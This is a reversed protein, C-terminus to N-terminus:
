PATYELWHDALRAYDALDVINNDIIDAGGCADPALCPNDLWHAALIRLDPTNVDCDYDLDGVPFPHNVDGCAPGQTRVEVYDIEYSYVENLAPDSVPQLSEDYADQWAANPAWFNFYLAM